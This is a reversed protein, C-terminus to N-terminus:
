FIYYIEIERKNSKWIVINSKDLDTIKLNSTRRHLFIHVYLNYMYLSYRTRLHIYANIYTFTNVATGAFISWFIPIRM